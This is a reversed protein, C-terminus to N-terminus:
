KFFGIIADIIYQQEETRLEPYVPLCVSHRCINEAIPCDGEKYSGTNTYVKQLHLPVPYFAGSGIGSESLHSVFAEKDPALVAYQHWCSAGNNCNGTPLKLPTGALESNYKKAIGTRAVNYEDLHPLKALLVAAQLSDLRSNRGILFNYYKYPDYLPDDSPTVDDM